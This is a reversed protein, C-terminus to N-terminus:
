EGLVCPQNAAALVQKLWLRRGARPQTQLRSPTHPRPAETGPAWFEKRVQCSVGDPM